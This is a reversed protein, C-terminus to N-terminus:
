NDYISVIMDAAAQACSFRLTDADVVSVSFDSEVFITTLTNVVSFVSLKFVGTTFDRSTLGESILYGQAVAWESSGDKKVYIDVRNGKARGFSPNELFYDHYVEADANTKYDSPAVLDVTKPNASADFSSAGGVLNNVPSDPDYMASSDSISTYVGYRPKAKFFKNALSSNLFVKNQAPLLNSSNVTTSIKSGNIFQLPVDYDGTETVTLAVVTNDFIIFNDLNPETSALSGYECIVSRSFYSDRVVINGRMQEVLSLRCNSRCHTNHIVLGDVLLSSSNQAKALDFINFGRSINLFDSQLKVSINKFTIASDSGDGTSKNINLGSDVSTADGDQVLDLRINQLLHTRGGSADLSGGGTTGSENARVRVLDTALNTNQTITLSVTCDQVGAYSGINVTTANSETISGSNIHVNRVGYIFVGRHINNVVLRNIVTNDGSLQCTVGYGTYENSFTFPMASNDVEVDQVSIDKSRYVSDMGNTEYDDIDTSVLIGEGNVAKIASGTVGQSGSTSGHRVILARVNDGAEASDVDVEFNINDFTFGVTQKVDFLNAQGQGETPAILLKSTGFIVQVDDTQETQFYSLTSGDTYNVDKILFTYGGSIDFPSGTRLCHQWYLYLAESSDETGGPIAGFALPSNPNIFDNLNVAQYDSTEPDTGAPVTVPFSSSGVYRYYGNTGQAVDNGSTYTFGTEFKGVLLDGWVASAIADDVYQLTAGSSDPSIDGRRLPEQDSLPAPLNLIRRSNMDLNADMQNTGSGNRDLTDQMSLEVKALENNIGQLTSVPTRTYRAM